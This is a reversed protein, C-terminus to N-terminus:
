RALIQEAVANLTQVDPCTVQIEYGGGVARIRVDTNLATRLQTELDSLTADPKGAVEKSTPQKVTPRAATESERALIDRVLEETQRVSLSREKIERLAEGLRPTNLLSLLSRAHGASITGRSVEARVDEPLDLLRITNTM